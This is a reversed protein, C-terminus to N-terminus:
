HKVLQCAGIIAAESQHLSSILIPVKNRFIPMLNAEFYNKLTDYFINSAQTLGGFLIIAEPDFMATFDACAQALLQSFRNFIGIAVADGKLAEQCVIESTIQSLNYKKLSTQTAPNKIAQKGSHAIGTASCYAELCGCGGCNCLRAKSGRVIKYHGLEGALGRHGLLIKGDVVVGAGVGTGLTLLVFNKMGRAVGCTMEGIAAANADNTLSCRVNNETQMMDVLPVVKGRGWSTNHAFEVAGSSQNGNPADIGIGVVNVIGNKALLSRIAESLVKVFINADDTQNSPIVITDLVNNASDVLGIKTNTAGIDVGVYYQM